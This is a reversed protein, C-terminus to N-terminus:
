VNDEVSRFLNKIRILQDVCEKLKDAVERVKQALQSNSNKKTGPNDEETFYSDLGQLIGFCESIADISNINEMEQALRAIKELHAGMEKLKSSDQTRLHEMGVDIFRLCSLIDEIQARYNSIIKEVKDKIQTWKRKKTFSASAGTVGGAAAIGIGVGTAVLSAGFTLPALALGAAITVGGVAGTTGGTLKALRTSKNTKVLSDATCHLETIHNLLDTCRQVILLEYLRMATKVKQAVSILPNTATEEEQYDVPLNELGGVSRWWELLIDLERATRDGYVSCRESWSHYTALRGKRTLGAPLDRMGDDDQSLVDDISEYVHVPPEASRTQCLLPKRTQLLSVRPPGVPRPPPANLPTTHNPLNRDNPLVDIYAPGDVTENGNHWSTETNRIDSTEAHGNLDQTRRTRSLFSRKLVPPPPRAPAVDEKAPSKDSLVDIYTPINQTELSPNCTEDHVEEAHSLRSLRLNRLRSPDPPPPRTPCKPKPSAEQSM